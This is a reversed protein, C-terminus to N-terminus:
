ERASNTSSKRRLCRIRSTRRKWYSDSFKPADAIARAQRAGHGDGASASPERERHEDRSMSWASGLTALLLYLPVFSQDFYAVSFFTAAHAALAAGCCWVLWRSAVSDILPRAIRGAYGFALVLCAIFLAMQLLGGVVGMSLYHNTIDTHNPDAPIGTPMWHRTRDTGYLWWESLHQLSSRILEARHWGTSGGALDIRALVFYAPDNMVVDLAGYTAVAAWRLGRMSQRCHWLLMGVVGSALSLIPGSSASAIVITLCAATGLMALCRHTNWLGIVIPFSTAGLTGGLISHGFAGLARIRGERIEPSIPTGAMSYFLNEVTFKEYVMEAAVPILVLALTKAMATLDDSSRLFARVPFYIGWVNYTVGLRLVVAGTPDAHLLGSTVNWTGWLFVTWDLGNMRISLWEGRLFVRLVALAIMVRIPTFHFPGIELADGYFPVYCAVALIPALAYRRPLALVALGACLVLGLVFLMKQNATHLYGITDNRM